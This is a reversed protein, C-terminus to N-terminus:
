RTASDAEGSPAPARARGAPGNLFDQLFRYEEVASHIVNEPCALGHGEGQYTVHRVPIGRARLVQALRQSQAAPVIPDQSGHILLTPTRLADVQALVSRREYEAREVPWAGILGDLYRSEMKHTHGPIASPDVVGSCSIVAAFDDSQAAALLATLGGSSLGRVAIRSPDALGQAVLYRATNVCDSVDIIGWLGRISERYARGYGASGRYNVEAVAFGRTTWFEVAYNLAGTSVVAPGGHCSVILPPLRVVRRPAYYIAHATAGGETPFEIRKPKSVFRRSLTRERSRRVVRVEKGKVSLLTIALPQRDPAGLVAVKDGSAAVGEVVSCRDPLDTVSGDANIRVLTDRGNARAAAVLSGDDLFDYTSLGCQWDTRGFEALRPALPRLGASPGDMVHLNWWGSGDHVVYLRGDPGYRPQTYSRCRESALLRDGHPGIERLVSEDWAMHPHDWAVYAIRRGEPSVAPAGYFDHGSALVTIRCSGDTPVAVLDHVVGQPLVRERVAYLLRGDPTIAPAAYRVRAPDSQTLPVVEGIKSCRHLSQSAAEVFYISSNSATYPRSGYGYVDSRVRWNGPLAAHPARGDDACWLRMEGAADRLSEVWYTRHGTRLVYSLDRLGRVLDEAHM